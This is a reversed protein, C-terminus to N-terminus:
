KKRSLYDVAGATGLAAGTGYKGINRGVHAAMRTALSADKGSEQLQKLMREDKAIKARKIFNWKGTESKIKALNKSAKKGARQALGLLFGDKIGAEIDFAVLNITPVESSKVDNKNGMLKNGLYVGAGLGLGVGLGWKGRKKLNSKLIEKNAQKLIQENKVGVNGLNKTVDKSFKFDNKIIDPINKVRKTTGRAALAGLGAGAVGAGMGNQLSTNNKAREQIKSNPNYGGAGAIATRKLFGDKNDASNIKFNLMDIEEQIKRMKRRNHKIKMETSIESKNAKNGYYPLKLLRFNM